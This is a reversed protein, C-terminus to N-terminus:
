GIEGEFGLEVRGDPYVIIPVSDSLQLAEDLNKQDSDVRREEFATGRRRWSRRLKDCTPCSSLTYVVPIDAM